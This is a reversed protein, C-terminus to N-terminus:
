QDTTAPSYSPTTRLLVLGAQFFSILLAVVQEHILQKDAPSTLKKIFAETEAALEPTWDAGQKDAPILMCALLGFLQNSRVIRSLLENTFAAPDADEPMEIIDLGAARIRDMTVYDHEVTSNECARFQRGGLTILDSM